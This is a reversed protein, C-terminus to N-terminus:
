ILKLIVLAMRKPNSISLNSIVTFFQGYSNKDIAKIPKIIIEKQSKFIKIHFRLALKIHKRFIVVM